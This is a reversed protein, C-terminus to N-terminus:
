EYKNPDRLDEYKELIWLFVIFLLDVFVYTGLIGFMTILGLIFLVGIFSLM